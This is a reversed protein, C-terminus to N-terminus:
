RSLMRCLCATVNKFKVKYVTGCTTKYTWIVSCPAVEVHLCTGHNCTNLCKLLRQRVVAINAASRVTWTALRCSNLHVAQGKSRHRTLKSISLDDGNKEKRTSNSPCYKHNLPLLSFILKCYIDPPLKCRCGSHNTETHSNFINSITIFKIIVTLFILLFVTATTKKFICV